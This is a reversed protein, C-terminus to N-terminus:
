AAEPKARGARVQERLTGTEGFLRERWEKVLAETDHDHPHFDRRYYDLYRPRLRGFLGGRSWFARAGRLNARLDFLRGDERLLRLHWFTSLALFVATAFAMAAAREEYTGGAAVFVDFAVSKHEVEELAHWLWLDMVAPHGKARHEPDELLQAALTATFHELACTAALNMRPTFRAEIAELIPGLEREVRAADVGLRAMAANLREHERSHLAEQALFASVEVALRPDKVHGRLARVSRVFFREGAPFLASLAAWYLSEFPRGDYWYRPLAAEAGFAFAVRRVAMVRTEAPEPMTTPPEDDLTHNAFALPHM